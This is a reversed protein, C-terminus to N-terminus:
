RPKHSERYYEVKRVSGDYQVTATDGVNLTKAPTPATEYGGSQTGCGVRALSFAVFLFFASIFFLMFRDWNSVKSYDTYSM